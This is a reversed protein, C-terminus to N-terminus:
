AAPDPAVILRYVVFIDYSHTQLYRLMGWIAAFGSVGAALIGVVFPRARGRRCGPGALDIGEYLM